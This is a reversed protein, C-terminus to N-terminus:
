KIPKKPKPEQESESDLNTTNEFNEVDDDGGNGESLDNVIEKKTIKWHNKPQSKPRPCTNCWRYYKIKDAVHYVEEEEISNNDLDPETAPEVLDSINLGKLEISYNDNGNCNDHDNCNCCDDFSGDDNPNYFKIYKKFIM